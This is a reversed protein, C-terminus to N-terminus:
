ETEWFAVATVAWAKVADEPVVPLRQNASGFVAKALRAPARRGQKVHEVQGLYSVTDTASAVSRACRIPRGEKFWYGFVGKRTAM